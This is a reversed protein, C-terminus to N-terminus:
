DYSTKGLALCLVDGAGAELLIQSGAALSNGTTMIDDILLVNRGDVRSMKNVQMSNLHVAMSRDGGNALKKITETRILLDGTDLAGSAAAFQSALHHVGSRLKTADHSPIVAIALQVNTRINQKLVELFYAIGRARAEKLDLLRGSYTPYNGGDGGCQKHYWWPRYDGLAIIHGKAVGAHAVNEPM